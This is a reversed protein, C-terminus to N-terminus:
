KIKHYRLSADKFEKNPINYGCFRDTEIWPLKRDIGLRRQVKAFEFMMEVSTKFELKSHKAKIRENGAQPNIDKGDRYTHVEYLVYHEKGNVRLVFPICCGGLDEEQGGIYGLQEVVPKTEPM